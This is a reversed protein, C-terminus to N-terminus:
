TKEAPAKGLPYDVVAMAVPPHGNAGWVILEINSGEAIRRREADTPVWCSRLLVEGDNTEVLMWLDNDETGGELGMVHNSLHTRKARM